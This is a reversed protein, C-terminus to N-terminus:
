AFGSTKDLDSITERSEPNFKIKSISHFTVEFLKPKCLILHTAEINQHVCTFLNSIFLHVCDKDSSTYVCVLFM